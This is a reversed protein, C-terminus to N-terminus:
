QQSTAARRAALDVFFAMSQPNAMAQPNAVSAADALRQADPRFM